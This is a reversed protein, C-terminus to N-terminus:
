LEATPWRFDYRGVYYTQRLYELDEEWHIIALHMSDPDRRKALVCFTAISNAMKKLRTSTEPEGWKQIEEPSDLPPLPESYALDLVERRECANLSTKGVKYGLYGLMGTKLWQDPNPIDGSGPPAETTPWPFYGKEALMQLRYVVKTRLNRARDTRRYLLENFINFLSAPKDWWDEALNEIEDIPLKLYPRGM